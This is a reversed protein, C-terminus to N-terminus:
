SVLFQDPKSFLNQGMKLMKDSQHIPSNIYGNFHKWWERDPTSDFYKPLDKGHVVLSINGFKSMNETIM